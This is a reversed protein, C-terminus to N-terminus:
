TRVGHPSGAAADLYARTRDPFDTFVGDVGAVGFLAEHLADLSAPGAPLGDARVTYPHVALGAAHAAAVLPTAVPTGDARWEVCRTIPPGIGDAYEAVRALGAPTRLVDYDTAAEGWANEGILQILKLDCGLEHRMRRTELDDFCQVYVPQDRRTYGYRALTDLVVRTSDQGQAHHWAPSKVETYIGATRGTSRNLGRVLELEEQLTVLPFRLSNEAFRGPWHRQGSPYDVRERLTLARLETLTFDIAYWHGDDRARGPFTAAVDTLEELHLDHFVLAVGDRSLIVDQELYDAGYGHALVKAALSHEPLYGSAGRHAIVIPPHATM